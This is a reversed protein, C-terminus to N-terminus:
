IDICSLIANSILVMDKYLKQLLLFDDFNPNKALPSLDQQLDYLQDLHICCFKDRGALSVSKSIAKRDNEVKFGYRKKMKGEINKERALDVLEGWFKDVFDRMRIASLDYGMLKLKTKRYTKIAKNFLEAIYPNIRSLNSKIAEIQLNGEALDDFVSEFDIFWQDQKEENDITNTIVSHLTSASGDNFRYFPNISLLNSYTGVFEEHNNIYQSFIKPFLEDARDDPVYSAAKKLAKNSELRSDLHIVSNNLEDLKSTVGHILDDDKNILEILKDKETKKNSM